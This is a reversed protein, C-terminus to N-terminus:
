VLKKRLREIEEEAMECARLYEYADGYTQYLHALTKEMSQPLARLVTEPVDIGEARLWELKKQLVPGMYRDTEAYDEVIIRDEM